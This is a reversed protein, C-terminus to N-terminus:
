IGAMNTKLNDLEVTFGSEGFRSFFTNNDLINILAIKDKLIEFNQCNRDQPNIKKAPDLVNYLNYNIYDIIGM